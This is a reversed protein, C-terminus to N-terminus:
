GVDGCSSLVTGEDQAVILVKIAIVAILFLKSKGRYSAYSTKLSIHFLYGKVCAVIISVLLSEINIDTIYKVFISMIGKISNILLEITSLGVTLNKLKANKITYKCVFGLIFSDTIAGIAQICFSYGIIPIFLTFINRYATIDYTTLACYVCLSLLSITYYKKAKKSYLDNFNFAIINM